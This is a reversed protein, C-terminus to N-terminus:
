DEMSGSVHNTLRGERMGRIDEWDDEFPIQRCEVIQGVFAVELAKGEVHELFCPFLM